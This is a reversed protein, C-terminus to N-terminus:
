SEMNLSTYLNQSNIWAIGHMNCLILMTIAYSNDSIMVVIILNKNNGWNTDTIYHPNDKSDYKALSMVM